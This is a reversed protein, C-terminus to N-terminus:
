TGCRALRMLRRLEVAGRSSRLQELAARQKPTLETVEAPVEGEAVAEVFTLARTGAGERAGAPVVGNLVQGWGCLYYDAMWRTLKMLSPTLLPEEDIVQLIEKVNRSPTQSTVGVCYGVTARDGRGFPASVRKGAAIAAQLREPVAYTYPHDLPRDFVIEAFLGGAVAAAPPATAFLEAQVASSM